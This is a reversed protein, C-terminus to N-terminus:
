GRVFVTKISRFKGREVNAVVAEKYRALPYEHTLLADLPRGGDGSALECTLEFTERTRGAHPEAAYGMTGAIRLEKSWLSTLDLKDVQGAGGVLVITGQSAAFSLADQVSDRSGICDYILDFGGTLVPRGIVPKHRRAGTLACIRDLLDKGPTLTESAGLARAAQAQYDLLLLVSVHARRGLLRLAALVSFAIMGGGIILVKDGDDPLKQCAAHVGIAIPEILVARADPVADPVRVLQSAHAIVSESWGGPLDRHYGIVGGPALAGGGTTASGALHCTCLRGRACAPCPDVGRVACGLYPNVVVRDGEKFGAAHAEAGVQDIRGYIEHGLVFPMSSFPSMAPSLKFFITALDTGCVGAREVAIRAWSPGRLAPSPVDRLSLCSGRGYHLEPFRRGAAKALAYKALSLDFVVAQM